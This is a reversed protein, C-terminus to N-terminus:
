PTYLELGTVTNKIHRGVLDWILLVDKKSLEPSSYLMTEIETVVHVVERRKVRSLDDWAKDSQKIPIM